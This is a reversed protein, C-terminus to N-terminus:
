KSALLQRLQLGLYYESVPRWDQNVPYGSTAEILARGELADQTLAWISSQMGAPFSGLLRKLRSRDQRLPAKSALSYGPHARM